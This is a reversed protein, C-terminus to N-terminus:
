HTVKVEAIVAGMSFSVRETVDTIVCTSMVDFLDLEDDLIDDDLDLLSDSDAEENLIEMLSVQATPSLAQSVKTAASDKIITPCKPLM